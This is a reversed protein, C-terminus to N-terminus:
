HNEHRLSLKLYSTHLNSDSLKSVEIPKLISIYSKERRNNGPQNENTM